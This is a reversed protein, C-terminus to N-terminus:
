LLGEMAERLGEVTEVDVGYLLEGGFIYALMNVVKEANDYIQTEGFQEKEYEMCIGIATFADLDHSDLWKQAEYYGIIYYDENFAHFHWDEKNDNTLIGDNIRNIVHSALEQKISRIM